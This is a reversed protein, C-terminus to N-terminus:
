VMSYEHTENGRILIPKAVAKGETVLEGLLRTIREPGIGTTGRLGRATSAKEQIRALLLLKDQGDKAEQKAERPPRGGKLKSPDLEVDETWLPFDFRLTTASRPPFSRVISELVACGEEEHPRLIIHADAARSQAGAGAGVDGIEKGTQSGKSAHVVNGIAVGTAEAIRDELNFIQTMAANDNESMEPPLMRYLADFLVLGFEGRNFQTLERELETIPRLRGRLSVIEVQGAWFSRDMGMAKAVTNIRWQIESRKLENDLLLVRSRKTRMGFLDWGAAVSLLILYALWSKGIKSMSVLNFVSSERVWGEIIPPDLEPNQETLDELSVRDLLRPNRGALLDKAGSLREAIEDNGITPDQIMRRITVTESELRRRTASERISRTWQDIHAVYPAHDAWYIVQGPGGLDELINDAELSEALVLVNTEEGANHLRQLHKWITRQDAQPLDDADLSAADTM